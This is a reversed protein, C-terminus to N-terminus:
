KRDFAKKGHAATLMWEEEEGVPVEEWKRHGTHVLLPVKAQYRALNVSGFLNQVTHLSPLYNDAELDSTQPTRGTEKYFKKIAKIANRSSHRRSEARRARFTKLGAAKLGEDWSGFWFVVSDFGGYEANFLPQTAAGYKKSLHQLKAITQERCNGRENRGQPSWTVGGPKYSKEKLVKQGKKSMARYEEPTRRTFRNYVDQAKIKAIPSMLGDKIRLGYKTKYDRSKMKHKMLIHGGLRSFYYGCIHCQILEGDNTRTVAGYFGYGDKVAEMPEKYGATTVDSYDPARVRGAHLAGLFRRCGGCNKHSDEKKEKGCNDCTKYLKKQM